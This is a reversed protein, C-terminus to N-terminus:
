QYVKYKLLDWVNEISNLDPFCAPWEFRNIGNDVKYKNSNKLTHKPDNDEQLIWSLSPDPFLNSISPLLYKNYIKILLSSDLNEEFFFTSRIWLIFADGFM